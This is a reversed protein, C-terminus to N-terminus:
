FFSEVTRQVREPELAFTLLAGYAAGSFHADHNIDDGAQYSHWASYALYGAAFLLGPIPVPIFLLHLNLGPVLLIASLMVAAVAGSAGLSNYRPVKLYRVTSPVFAVVVASVYLLLFREAGLLRNVDRAFFWLTLMNLLLHSLDAHIWGATLLRHVEGKGVRNPNLILGRQIPKYAWAVLTVLVVSGILLEPTSLDDLAFTGMVPVTDSADARTV